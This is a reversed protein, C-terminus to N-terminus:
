SFFLCRSPITQFSNVSNQSITLKGSAAAVHLPTYQNRDKANIDAGHQLLIEVTEIHGKYAAWHM